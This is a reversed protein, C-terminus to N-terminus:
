YNIFLICPTHESCVMCLICCLHISPCCVTSGSTDLANLCKQAKTTVNDPIFIMLLLLILLLHQGPPRNM